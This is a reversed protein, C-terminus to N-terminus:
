WPKIPPPMPPPIPSPPPKPVVVRMGFSVAFVVLVTIFFGAGESFGAIGASTSVLAATGFSMGFMSLHWKTRPTMPM